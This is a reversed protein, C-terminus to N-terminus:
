KFSQFFISKGVKFKEDLMKKVGELDAMRMEDGVSVLAIDSPEIATGRVPERREKENGSEDTYYIIRNVTVSYTNPGDHESLISYHETKEEGEKASSTQIYFSSRDEATNRTYSNANGSYNRPITRLLLLPKQVSIEEMAKDYAAPLTSNLFDFVFQASAFQDNQVSFFIPESDNLKISEVIMEKLLHLNSGSNIEEPTKIVETASPTQYMVQNVSNILVIFLQQREIAGPKIALENTTIGKQECYNQVQQWYYFPNSQVQQVVSGSVSNEDLTQNQMEKKSHVEKTPEAFALLMVAALPVIFLLKLRARPPSKKKLMMTIRNKIKSQNFSNVVSTFRREGVAKRVLLLQYERAEIGADIVANDAEYEHIERLDRCVMWVMPNFWHLILLLESLIVDINHKKRIHMKEHMIIERPNNIYDKESLVIYRFFSFPVIDNNTIVLKFGDSDIVRGKTIIQRVRVLSIIMRIIMAIIGILYIAPLLALRKNVPSYKDTFGYSGISDITESANQNSTEPNIQAESSTPAESSQTESNPITGILDPKRNRNSEDVTESFQQSKIMEELNFFPQSIIGTSDVKLKVVPLLSCVILGTILTIRTFRYFTEQM